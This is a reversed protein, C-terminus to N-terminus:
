KRSRRRGRDGALQHRRRFQGRDAAASEIVHYNTVIHGDTDWLFGSGSGEEPTTGWFFDTRLVQTTVNVVAPAVRCTSRSGVHRSM